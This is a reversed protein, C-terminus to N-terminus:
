LAWTSRHMTIHVVEDLNPTAMWRSFFWGNFLSSCLMCYKLWKWYTKPIECSYLESKDLCCWIWQAFSPWSHHEVSAESAFLNRDRCFCERWQLTHSFKGMNTPGWCSDRYMQRAGGSFWISTHYYYTRIDYIQIPQWMDDNHSKIGRSRRQPHWRPKCLRVCSM